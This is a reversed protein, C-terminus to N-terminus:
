RGNEKEKRKNKLSREWQSGSMRREKNGEEEGRKELKALAELEWRRM